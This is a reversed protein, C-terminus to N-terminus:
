RQELCVFPQGNKITFALRMDTLLSLGKLVFPGSELRKQWRKPDPQPPLIHLILGRKHPLLSQSSRASKSCSRSVVSWAPTAFTAGRPGALLQEVQDKPKHCFSCRFPSATAKRHWM